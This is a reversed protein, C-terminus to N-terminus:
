WIMVSYLLVMILLGVTIAINIVDNTFSKDSDVEPYDFLDIYKDSFGKLAWRVFAGIARFLYAGPGGM